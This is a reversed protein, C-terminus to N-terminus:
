LMSELALEREAERMIEEVSYTVFEGAEAQRIGEAFFEKYWARKREENMSEWILKTRRGIETHVEFDGTAMAWKLVRKVEPTLEVNSTPM